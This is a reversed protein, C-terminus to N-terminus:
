SYLIIRNVKWNEHSSSRIGVLVSTSPTTCRGTQYCAGDVRPKEFLVNHCEKTSRSSKTVGLNQFGFYHFGLIDSYAASHVCIHTRQCCRLAIIHPYILLTFKTAVLEPVFVVVHSQEVKSTRIDFRYADVILTQISRPLHLEDNNFTRNVFLIPNKNRWVSFLEM